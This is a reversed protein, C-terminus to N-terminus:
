PGVYIERLNKRKIIYWEDGGGKEAGKNANADVDREIEIERERERM